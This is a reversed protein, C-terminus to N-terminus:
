RSNSRPPPDVGSESEPRTKRRRKLAAEIRRKGDESWKPTKGKLTQSLHKGNNQFLVLNSLDNNLPDGDIHHVVEHRELYRGLKAEMVLRHEAVYRAKTCNPHDPRHLYRYKGVMAVGGKWDPHKEGGRPGSRQTKWGFRKCWKEVTRNNVGVRKAAERQTLGEDEIMRRVPEGLEHFRRRPDGKPM